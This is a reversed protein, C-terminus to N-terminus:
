STANAHSKDVEAYIERYEHGAHPLRHLCKPYQTWAWLIQRVAFISQTHGKPDNTPVMVHGKFGGGGTVGEVRNGIAVGGIDDVMDEANGSGVLKSSSLGVLRERTTSVAVMPPTQIKATVIANMAILTISSGMSRSVDHKDLPNLLHCCTDRQSRPLASRLLLLFNSLIVPM